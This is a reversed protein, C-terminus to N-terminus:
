KEAHPIASPCHTRMKPWTFYRCKTKRFAAEFAATARHWGVIKGASSGVLLGSPFDIQKSPRSPPRAIATAPKPHITERIQRADNRNLSVIRFNIRAATRTTIRTLIISWEPQAPAQRVPLVVGAAAASPSVRSPRQQEPFGRLTRSFPTSSPTSVLRPCGLNPTACRAAYPRHRCCPEACSRHRAYRRNRVFFHSSFKGVPRDNIEHELCIM